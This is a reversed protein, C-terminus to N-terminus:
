TRAERPGRMGRPLLAYWDLLIASLLMLIALALLWSYADDLAFRAAEATSPSEREGPALGALSSEEDDFFNVAFEGVVREGIRVEYVGTEDLGSIEVLGNRDRVLPRERGAEHVLLLEDGADGESAPPQQFRITEDLRYNWLRLGPLDDRCLELLNTILIPWDPSEGINSRGLDINMVFATSTLGSVQGLLPIRGASILPRLNLGTPQVGGWVVGGLVIGDMLPHQKEILYPGILDKSQKRVVPSSNLPGIGFWWQEDRLAPLTDAPGIILDAEAAPGSQVDRAASLVRQILRAAAEEPPLTVAVTLLRVKPEVLAVSNDVALGDGSAALTVTLRGLGGPLPSQLPASANGSLDLSQQLLAQGEAQATLTVRTRANSRNAVRLFLQGAGTQSDFTWHAASLAVNPLQRGVSLVEMGRPLGGADEPMTDTLFLFHGDAGVIRAAEDWAPHFDHQTARPQWESLVSQAEDWTMARAGLLTPQMGSRILTVRTEADTEKMRADFRALAADRFSVEGAPQASMSASDDLVVVLHSVRGQEGFRPQALALSFILGALLELLLSPTIPLRDRRRGATQVRTEAGWLHAGGVLLPPFRRQYLHIATIVPLSLLGLLGWPNAFYM